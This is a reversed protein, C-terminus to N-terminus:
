GQVESARAVRALLGKCALVLIHMHGRNQHVGVLQRVMRAREAERLLM